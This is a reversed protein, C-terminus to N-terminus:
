YKEKQLTPYIMMEFLGESSIYKVNNINLGIVPIRIVKENSTKFWYLSGHLRYIKILISPDDFIQPNWYPTFRDSYELNHQECLLDIVGDYNLTFIELPQDQLFGRLPSLYEYGNSEIKEISERIFSQTKKYINDILSYDIKIIETYKNEILKKYEIDELNKILSM